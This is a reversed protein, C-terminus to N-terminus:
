GSLSLFHNLLDAVHTARADSTLSNGVAWLLNGPLHGSGSQATVALVVEGTHVVIGRRDLDIGGTRLRLTRCTGPGCTVAVDVSTTIQETFTPGTADDTACTVTLTGMAQLDADSAVFGTVTFGGNVITGDVSQGTMPDFFWCTGTVTGELAPRTGPEEAPSPVPSLLRAENLPSLKSRM